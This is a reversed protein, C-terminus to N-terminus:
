PRRTPPPSPLRTWRARQDRPENWTPDEAIAADLLSLADATPAGHAQARRLLAGARFRRNVAEAAALPFGKAALAARENRGFVVLWQEASQQAAFEAATLSHKAGDAPDMVDVSAVAGCAGGAARERRIGQLVVAHRAAGRSVFAVPAFGAEVLRAGAEPPGTFVLSDYGHDALARQLDFLDAGDAAIVLDRAFAALSGLSDRSSAAAWAATPVCLVAAPQRVAPREVTAACRVAGTLFLANALVMM